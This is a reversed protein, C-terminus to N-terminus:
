NLSQESSDDDDGSIRVHEESGAVGSVESTGCNFTVNRDNEQCNTLSIWKNLSCSASRMQCMECVTISVMTSDIQMQSKFYTSQDLTHM